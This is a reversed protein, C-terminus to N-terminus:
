TRLLLIFLGYFRMLLIKTISKFFRLISIRLLSIQMLRSSGTSANGQYKQSYGDSFSYLVSGYNGLKLRFKILLSKNIWMSQVIRLDSITNTNIQLFSLCNWIWLEYKCLIQWWIKSRDGIRTFTRSHRFTKKM